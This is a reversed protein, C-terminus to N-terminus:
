QLRCENGTLNGQSDIEWCDYAVCNEDPHLPDPCHYQPPNEIGYQSPLACSCRQTDETSWDAPMYCEGTADNVGASTCCTGSGDVIRSACTQSKCDTEFETSMVRQIHWNPNVCYENKCLESTSGPGCEADASTISVCLGAMGKNQKDSKDALDNEGIPNTASFIVQTSAEGPVENGAPNDCLSEVKTVTVDCALRAPFRSVSRVQDILSCGDISGYYWWTGPPRVYTWGADATGSQLTALGVGVALGMMLARKLM